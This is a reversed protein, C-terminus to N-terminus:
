MYVCVHMCVCSSSSSRSRDTDIVLYIHLYLNEKKREKQRAIDGPERRREVRVSRCSLRRLFRSTKFSEISFIQCQDLQSFIDDYQETVEIKNEEGGEGKVKRGNRETLIDYM